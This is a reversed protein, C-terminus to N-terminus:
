KPAIKDEQEEKKPEPILKCEGIEKEGVENPVIMLHPRAVIFGVGVTGKLYYVQGPAVDITVASRSETKAWFEVEGPMSFYPYYGGSHLTTVVKDGVKVDYAVAGGIIGGPRYVYVLGRGEPVKDVKTYVPGLTACGSGALAGAALIAVLVLRVVRKGVM